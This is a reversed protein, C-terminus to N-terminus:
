EDAKERKTGDYMEYKQFRCELPGNFLVHKQSVKLGINKLADRNSSILWATWGAYNKKFTDGIGQYFALIDRIGLREGYPPNMILVGAEGPTPYRRFPLHRVQIADALGLAEITDECMRIAKLDKDGGHIQLTPNSRQDNAEQKVKQFLAEDYNEWRMFAYGSKRFFGAPIGQGLMAAEWLITGTGCMPDLLPQHAAWGSLQLMGAALVENLPALHGMDRYGRRHLSDGSSDLSVTFDEGQVHINLGVDPNHTNVNPRTGTKKRFQDVIADKAKLAVYQSHSFHPSNVATSIAFSDELRLHMAWNYSHIKHYLQRESRAQFRYIPKLIRIATRLQYNARYLLSLDGEFSVGRRLPQVSQAGLAELEQQLLPELGHLTKAVFEM